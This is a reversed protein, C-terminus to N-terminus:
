WARARAARVARRRWTNRNCAVHEPGTWRSRDVDDHGLDWPERGGILEGCWACRVRGTAVRPAWWRRLRRHAAGYGRAVTLGAM